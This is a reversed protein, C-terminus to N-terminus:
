EPIHQFLTAGCPLRVMGLPAPGMAEAPVLFLFGGPTLCQSLRRLVAERDPPEFYLLVNQCFIVDQLPLAWPGPHCLNLSAFEVVRCVEEIIEFWDMEATGVRRVFRRRYPEGLGRLEFGRYRGERARALARESVDTGVVRLRWHEAGVSRLFCVALSYTEQGTACGASWMRVEQETRRRKAELLAPLAIQTLAAFSPEHRFFCTDSNVLLELLERWERPGEKDFAALHYYVAHSTLQRAQMRVQLAEALVRARSQAFALGCQRVIFEEWLAKEPVTLESPREGPPSGM